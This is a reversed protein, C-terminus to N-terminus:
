NSIRIVGFRTASKEFVIQQNARNYIKLNLVLTDDSNQMKIEFKNRLNFSIGDQNQPIQMIDILTYMKYENGNLLELETNVRGAFCGFVPFGEGCTIVAYFPFEEAYEIRQKKETVLKDDSWVGSQSISGNALYLIGQGSRKSDKYEGVYKRGDAWTYTGQGNFAGDKHEGVYKIGNAFTFTGQGNRKDDKFEGVYKNGNALTVTGFCNHFYGSSPCAPLKRQQAEAASPASNGKAIRTFRNPDVYQATVLRDDSWVGSQSISGNALYLIGQGNHNDDKWEGVYKSGDAFTLTGQGNRKEDKFEGVYKSGDAWTFTGQGNRKEDKFKGVYKNGDAFTYTGQGNFKGDKHEGVYKEGDAFTFTGQGNHNDDKFEGVYKNGNAFTYTGQGNLMDDKFEGVYKNGDADTYTGQGSFMDDKFKGVYKIGNAYTFTGQGNRKDDKFEGVYKNGDAFTATGFCNHFYGSSPCAPLKRQAYASGVMMLVVILRLLFKM